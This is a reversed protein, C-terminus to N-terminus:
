SAIYLERLAIVDVYRLREFLENLEQKQFNEPIWFNREKVLVKKAKFRQLAKSVSKQLEATKSRREYAIM